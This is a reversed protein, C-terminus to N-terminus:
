FLVKTSKAFRTRKLLEIIRKKTEKILEELRIRSEYEPSLAVITEINLKQLFEKVREM